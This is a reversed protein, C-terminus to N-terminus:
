EIILQIFQMSEIDTPVRNTVTNFELNLFEIGVINHFINTWIREALDTTEELDYTLGLAAADSRKAYIYEFWNTGNDEIIGFAPVHGLDASNTPNGGLGWEYLNNLGDLDPDDTQNTESGMSPYQNAWKVYPPLPGLGVAISGTGGDVFSSDHAANLTAFTYTGSTYTTDGIILAGVRIDSNLIVDEYGATVIEYTASSLDADNKWDTTGFTSQVLGTFGLADTITLGYYGISSTANGMRLTGAGTWHDIQVDLGAGSGAGFQAFSNNSFGALHVSQTTGGNGVALVAGDLENFSTITATGSFHKFLIIGGSSTLSGAGFTPSAGTPSRLIFGAMDCHDIPLIATPPTGDVTNTWDGLTNWSQSTGQNAILKYSKSEGWQTIGVSDFYAVTGLSSLGVYGGTYTSDDQNIMLTGNLYVKINSEALEVTLRLFFRGEPDYVSQTSQLKGAGAKYLVVKGDHTVLALYGSTYPSDGPASKRFQIGLWGSADADKHLYAQITGNTVTPSDLAIHRTSTITSQKLINDSVSWSGTNPTWGNSDGDNFTDYFSYLNTTGAGLGPVFPAGTEYQYNTEMSMTGPQYYNIYTPAAALSGSGLTNGKIWADVSFERWPTTRWDSVRIANAHGGHITNNELILREGSIHIGHNNYTTITNNRITANRLAQDYNHYGIIGDQSYARNNFLNCMASNSLTSNQIVVGESRAIAISGGMTQDITCDDIYVNFARGAMIGNAVSDWEGINEIPNCGANKLTCGVITANTSRSIEVLHPEHWNTTYNNKTNLVWCNEITIGETRQGDLAIAATRNADVILDKITSGNAMFVMTQDDLGSGARLTADAQGDTLTTGEPLTIPSDIYYRVSDTLIYTQNTGYTDFYWAISGTVSPEAHDVIGDHSISYTGAGGNIPAVFFAFILWFGISLTSRRTKEKKVRSWSRTEM